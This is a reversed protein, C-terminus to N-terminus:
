NSSASRVGDNALMVKWSSSFIPIFSCLFIPTAGPSMLIWSAVGLKHVTRASPRRLNSRAQLKNCNRTQNNICKVTKVDSAWFAGLSFSLFDDLFAVHRQTFIVRANTTNHHRTLMYASYHVHSELTFPIWTLSRLAVCLVCALLNSRLCDEEM